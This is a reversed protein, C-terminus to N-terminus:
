TSGLIQSARIQDEDPDIFLSVRIGAEALRACAASVEEHHKM